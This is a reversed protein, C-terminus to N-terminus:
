FRYEVGISLMDIKLNDTNEWEARVAWNRTFAYKVGLGYHTETEDREETNPNPRVRRTEVEHQLFGLKGFLEFRAGLPLTGVAALGYSRQTAAVDVPQPGGVVTATVEGWDIYTAEAALYRNFRYGGLIKWSTDTDECNALRLTTVGGTDCWEKFQSQGLAGGIYPGAQALVGQSALLVTAASLARAALIM